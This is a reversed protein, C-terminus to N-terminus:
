DIKFNLSHIREELYKIGADNSIGRIHNEFMVMFIKEFSYKEKLWFDPDLIDELKKIYLQAVLEKDLDTRYLGEEIGKEINSIIRKSLLRRKTQSHRRFIEPYFKLLDYAMKSNLLALKSSLIRSVELLTEIANLERKEILRTEKLQILRETILLKDILDEKSSVYQYLTKKSIGLEKSLDDMSVSRIGYKLFMKFAGELIYQEKESM